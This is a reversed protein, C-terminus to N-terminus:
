LLLIAWYINLIILVWLLGVLLNYLKPSSNHAGKVGFFSHTLIDVCYVYIWLYIWSFMMVLYVILVYYSKACDMILWILGVFTDSNDTIFLVHVGIHTFGSMYSVTILMVSATHHCIMEYFDNKPKSTLHHYTNNLHYALDILYYFRIIWDMQATPFDVYMRDSIGNGLLYPSHSSLTPLVYFYGYIQM